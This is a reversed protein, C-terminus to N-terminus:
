DDKPALRCAEILDELELGGEGGTGTKLTGMGVDAPGRYRGMPDPVMHLSSPVCRLEFDRDGSGAAFTVGTAGALISTAGAEGGHGGAGGGATGQQQQRQTQLTSAGNKEAAGEPTQPPPPPTVKADASPPSPNFHIRMFVDPPLAEEDEAQQTTQAPPPLPAALADESWDFLLSDTVASFPNIDLLWVRSRNDVYVDAVGPRSCPPPQCNASELIGRVPPGPLMNM